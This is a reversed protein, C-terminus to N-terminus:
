QEPASGAVCPYSNSMSMLAPASPKMCLGIGCVLSFSSSSCTCSLRPMRPQRAFVVDYASLSSGARPTTNYVLQIYPLVRVWNEAYAQTMIRLSAMIWAHSRENQGNARATHSFLLTQQTQLKELVKKVLDSTFAPGQDSVLEGPPGFVAVVRETLADAIETAQQTKLPVLLIFTSYLDQVVLVHRYDRSPVSLELVDVSMTEFLESTKRSRYHGPAEKRDSVCKSTFFEVSLEVATGNVVTM